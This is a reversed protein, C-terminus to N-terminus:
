EAKVRFFWVESSNLPPNPNSVLNTLSGTIYGGSVALRSGGIAYPQIFPKSVAYDFWTQGNDDSALVTIRNKSTIFQDTSVAYLLSTADSPNTAFFGDLNHISFKEGKWVPYTNLDFAKKNLDYRVYHERWNPYNFQAEYMFHLAGNHYIMSSLWTHVDFEDSLSVRDTPGTEDAVVPTKLQTGNGKVWTVGGDNSVMFHIDWYLYPNYTPPASTTWAAFLQGNNMSLLPYQLLGNPGNQVLQTSRLLKGNTDFVYFDPGGGNFNFYYLQNRTSDYFTSFKGAAAGPIQTVLPSQFNKSSLFKYFFLDATGAPSYDGAFVYINGSADTEIAPSKTYNKATYVTSFTKGGDTSRLLKWLHLNGWNVGYAGVYETDLYTMFIGYANSVVKQNHSQFTGYLPSSTSIQTLEIPVLSRCMGGYTYVRNNTRPDSNDSASFYLSNGLHDFAGKGTSRVTTQTSHAPGLTKPPNVGDDEFLALSSQNPAYVTDGKFGFNKALFYSHGSDPKVATTDITGCVRTPCAGSAAKFTYTRGNTRPDSNDSASFYLLNRWHSFAGNGVTRITAHLSHAPGLPLGNEYLIVNSTSTSLNDGGSAFLPLSYSYGSDPNVLNTDITGCFTSVINITVTNSVVGKPAPQAVTATIHVVAGNAVSIAVSVVGSNSVKAAALNDSSWVLTPNPIIVDFDDLVVASLKIVGGPSLTVTTPRIDIQAPQGIKSTSTSPASTAALFPNTSSFLEGVQILIKELSAILPQIDERTYASSVFPFMFLLSLFVVLIIKKSTM